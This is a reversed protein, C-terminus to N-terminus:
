RFVAVTGSRTEFAIGLLRAVRENVAARVKRPGEALGREEGRIVRLTMEATQRGIEYYDPYVGAAAGARVFAPSFGVVPLRDELAALILPKITVSNYLDADPFCLLFDVKGKLAGLARLLNAPGDCDMVVATFGEKRASAQIEEATQRSRAPSRLIGVRRRQPLLLRMEALVTSLPVEVDLYGSISSGDKPHLVMTAIVPVGPNRSRVAALAQSGMAVVVRVERGTLAQALAGESGPSRLDVTQVGNTALAAQLGHLAEDFAEVSSEYTVVVAAPAAPLGVSACILVAALTRIVGM